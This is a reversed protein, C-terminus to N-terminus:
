IKRLPSASRTRGRAMVYRITKSRRGPPLSFISCGPNDRFVLKLITTKGFTPERGTQPHADSLFSRRPDQSDMKALIAFLSVDTKGGTLLYSSKFSICCNLHSWTGSCM